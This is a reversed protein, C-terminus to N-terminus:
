LFVDLNESPAQGGGFGARGGLGALNRVVFFLILMKDTHLVKCVHILGQSRDGLSLNM